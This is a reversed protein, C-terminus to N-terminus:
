SERSRRRRQALIAPSASTRSAIGIQALDPQDAAFGRFTIVTRAAARGRRRSAVHRRFARAMETADRIVHVIPHL